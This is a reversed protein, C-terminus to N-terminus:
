EIKIRCSPMNASIKPINIRVTGLYENVIIFDLKLIRYYMIIWGKPFIKKIFTLFYHNKFM